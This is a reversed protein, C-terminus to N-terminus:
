THRPRARYYAWWDAHDADQPTGTLVHTDFLRERVEGDPVETPESSTGAAPSPDARGARDTATHPVADRDPTPLALIRGQAYLAALAARVTHHDLSQATALQAVTQPRRELSAHVIEQITEPTLQRGVQPKQQQELGEPHPQGAGRLPGSTEAPTPCPRVHAGLEERWQALTTADVGRANPDTGPRSLTVVDVRHPRIRRVYEALLRRNKESDNLGAVLLVELYLRGGFEGAFDALGKAVAAATLGDACKNIAAFEEEVLSDLSPLVVDALALEVRVDAHMLTTSNTLVGVPVGPYIARAGLIVDGLATNLTPEGLGGLTVIQPDPNGADRYAQLQALLTSAPVYEARERTLERTPGVECYVCDMSCIRRGLMDVGLSLGLRGSVVPGFIHTLPNTHRNTM